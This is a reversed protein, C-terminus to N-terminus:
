TQMGARNRTLYNHSYAATLRSHETLKNLLLYGKLLTTNTLVFIFLSLPVVVLVVGLHLELEVAVSTCTRSEFVEDEYSAAIRECEGVRGEVRQAAARM